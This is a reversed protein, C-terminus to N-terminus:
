RRIKSICLKAWWRKTTAIMIKIRKRRLMLLMVLVMLAFGITEEKFHLVGNRGEITISIIMM